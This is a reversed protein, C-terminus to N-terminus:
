RKGIRGSLGELVAVEAVDHQALYHALGRAHAELVVDRLLNQSRQSHMIRAPFIGLGTRSFERQTVAPVAVMRLHFRDQRIAVAGRHAPQDGSRIVERVVDGPHRAPGCRHPDRVAAGRM